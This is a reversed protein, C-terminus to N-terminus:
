DMDMANEESAGAEDVKGKGNDLVGETRVLGAKSWAGVVM